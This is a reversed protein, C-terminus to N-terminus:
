DVKDDSDSRSDHSPGDLLAAAHFASIDVYHIDLDDLVQCLIPDPILKCQWLVAIMHYISFKDHLTLIM